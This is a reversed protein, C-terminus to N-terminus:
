TDVKAPGSASSPRGRPWVGAALGLSADPHDPAPRISATVKM